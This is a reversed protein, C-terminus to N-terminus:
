VSERHKWQKEILEVLMTHNVIGWIPYDKQEESLKKVVFEKDGETIVWTHVKGNRDVKGSNRTNPFKQLIEPIEENGINKVIEQNLSGQLPYFKQFLLPSSIIIELNITPHEYFGEFVSLLMGWKPVKHTAQAYAYGKSTEIEIIDGVKVRKAM